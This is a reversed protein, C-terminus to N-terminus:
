GSGPVNIPTPPPPPPRTHDSPDDYGQDLLPPPNFSTGGEPIDLDPIDTGPINNAASPRPPPLPTAEIGDNGAALVLSSKQAPPPAFAPILKGLYDPSGPTLLEAATKGSKLGADLAPFYAGLFNQFRAEGEPGATGDPGDPGAIEGRAARLLNQEMASQARGEMTKQADLFRMLQQIGLITLQGGREPGAPRVLTALDANADPNGQAVDAAAPAAPAGPIAGFETGEGAPPELSGGKRPAPPLPQAPLPTRYIEKGSPDYKITEVYGVDRM